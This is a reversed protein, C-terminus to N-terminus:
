ILNEYPPKTLIVQPTLLISHHRCRPIVELGRPLFMVVEGSQVPGAVTGEMHLYRGLWFDINM